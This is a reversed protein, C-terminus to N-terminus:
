WRLKSCSFITVFKDFCYSSCGFAFHSVLSFYFTELCRVIGNINIDLLDPIIRDTFSLVELGVINSSYNQFSLVLLLFLCLIVPYLFFIDWFSVYNRMGCVCTDLFLVNRGSVQSIIIQLFNTNPWESSLFVNRPNIQDEGVTGLFFHKLVM